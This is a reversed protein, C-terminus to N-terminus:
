SAAAPPHLRELTNCTTSRRAAHVDLSDAGIPEAAPRRRAPVGVSGAGRSTPARSARPLHRLMEARRHGPLRDHGGRPARSPASERDRPRRRPDHGRRARGRGGHQRCRTWRASSRWWATLTGRTSGSAPSTWSSSPTSSRRESAASTLNVREVERRRLLTRSPRDPTLYGSASRARSLRPPHPDGRPRLEAAGARGAADPRPPGPRGCFDCCNPRGATSYLEPLTRGRWKWCLAEPQLRAGLCERPLHITRCPVQSLFVRVHM